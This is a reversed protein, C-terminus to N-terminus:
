RELAALDVREGETPYAALTEPEAAELSNLDIVADAPAAGPPVNLADFFSDVFSSVEAPSAGAALPPLDEFNHALRSLDVGNVLDGANFARKRGQIRALHLDLDIFPLEAPPLVRDKLQEDTYYCIKDALIPKCNRVRVIEKRPDLEWLEQPLMLPRKQDSTNTSTTTGKSAMVQRSRGHSVAKETYTGLMRSYEEADDQDGPAYLIQLAHNSIFTKAAKDGYESALQTMSQIITLFRLNYGALFSVGKAMVGVRGMSTFENMLLLCQYLLAANDEPKQRTNLDVLQSFVLNIFLSCVPLKGPPIVLYVSMRQSRVDALSFDSRSTAADVLPDAFIGLPANFSALISSLTNDSNSLFRDLADVCADSLPADGKDREAIIGQLYEKIPKGKGSSQRLLEGLTFPLSPTELVMLGLGVFLDRAKENFFKDNSSSDEKGLTPYLVAGITQLDGVRFRESRRVEDLPNLCHTHGNEDFPRFGYVPQGHAARFGSTQDFVEGKIDLVVMSDPWNLCNPIVVGVDKGSRTPAALLVFLQGGLALFKGNYKGVLIGVGGLLGTKGVEAPTAFRADGHLPRRKQTASAIVAPAVVFCVIVAAIGSGQLRKRLVADGKYASWYQPYSDLRAHAPSVKSAIAFFVASLYLAALGAAVAAVVIAAGKAVTRLADSM